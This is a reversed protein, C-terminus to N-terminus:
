KKRNMTISGNEEDENRTMAPKWFKRRQIPSIPTTYQGSDPNAGGGQMVSGCSAAGGEEKLSSNIDKQIDDYVKHLNKEFDQRPINFKTIVQGKLKSKPNTPDKPVETVNNEQKLVNNKLLMKLIHSKNYGYKKLVDNIDANKPDQCLQKIFMITSTMFSYYTLEERSERIVDLKEYPIYIRKRM